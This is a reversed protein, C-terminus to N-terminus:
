IKTTQVRTDHAQCLLRVFTTLLSMHMELKHRDFAAGQRQIGIAQPFMKTPHIIWKLHSISLVRLTM